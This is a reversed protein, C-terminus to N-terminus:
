SINNFFFSFYKVPWTIMSWVTNISIFFQTYLDGSGVSPNLPYLFHISPHIPISIWGFCKENLLPWILCKWDISVKYSSHYEKELSLLVHKESVSGHKESTINHTNTISLALSPSGLNLWVLPERFSGQQASLAFCLGELVGCFVYGGQCDFYSSFHSWIICM